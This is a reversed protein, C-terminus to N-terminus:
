AEELAAAVLVAVILGALLTASLWSFGTVAPLHYQIEVAATALPGALIVAIFAGLVYQGDIQERQRNRDTYSVRAMPTCRDASNETAEM